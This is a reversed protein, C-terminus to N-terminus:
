VEQRCLESEASGSLDPSYTYRVERLTKGGISGEMFNGSFLFGMKEYFLRARHNEELVWLFVDHFGMEKLERIAAKLLAKGYGKGVYQPLLYLSIIEGWSAFQEFRSKCFSTTGIIHGGEICILTHWDPQDLYPAWHGKPISDLYTQPVIGKYASKWSEEYIRSIDMRSDGPRIRRIEM